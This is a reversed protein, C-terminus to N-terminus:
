PMPTTGLGALFGAIENPQPTPTIAGAARPEAGAAAPKTPATTM